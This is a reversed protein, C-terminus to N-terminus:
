EENDYLDTLTKIHLIVNEDFNHNTKNKIPVLWLITQVIPSYLHEKIEIIPRGKQQAM